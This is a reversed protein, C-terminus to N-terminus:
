EDEDWGPALRPDHESGALVPGASTHVVGEPTGFYGQPDTEWARGGLRQPQTETVRNRQQVARVQTMGTDPMWMTEHHWPHLSLSHFERGLRTAERQTLVDVRVWEPSLGRVIGVLTEMEYWGGPRKGQEAMVEGITRDPNAVKM